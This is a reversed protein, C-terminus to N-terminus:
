LRLEVMQVTLRTGRDLDCVPPMDSVLAGLVAANDVATTM